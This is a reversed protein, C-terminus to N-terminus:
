MGQWMEGSLGGCGSARIIGMECIPLTLGLPHSYGAKWWVALLHCFRCPVWATLGAAVGDIVSPLRRLWLQAELTRGQRYNMRVQGDLM